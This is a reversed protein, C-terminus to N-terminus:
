MGYSKGGYDGEGTSIAGIDGNSEYEKSLDGIMFCRRYLMRM